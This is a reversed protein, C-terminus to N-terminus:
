GIRSPASAALCRACQCEFATGIEEPLANYDITLETYAGLDEAAFLLAAEDGIHLTANPACAHNIFRWPREVVRHQAGVLLTHMGQPGAAGLELAGIAEGATVNRLVFLGTGAIASPAARVVHGRHPLRLLARRLGRARM